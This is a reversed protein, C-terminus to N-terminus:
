ANATEMNAIPVRLVFTAGLGRGPSSASLEGGQSRAALCASHLGFGHGNPKTTFGHTFLSRMHEETIGVGNDIVRVVLGETDVLEIEVRVVMDEAEGMEVAQRANTLLNVLIELTKHRDVLAPPLDSPVALELVVRDRPRGSSTLGVAENVLDALSLAELLDGSRSNSQQRSVIATIHEVHDHLSDLMELRKEREQDLHTALSVLYPILKRGQPDDQLYSALCDSHQELLRSARLL